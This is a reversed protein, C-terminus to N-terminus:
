REFTSQSCRVNAKGFVIERDSFRISMIFGYEPHKVITLSEGMKPSTDYQYPISVISADELFLSYYHDYRLVRVVIHEETVPESTVLDELM